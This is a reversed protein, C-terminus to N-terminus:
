AFLTEDLGEIDMEKSNGEALAARMKSAEKAWRDAEKAVDQDNIMPTAYEVTKERYADTRVSYRDEKSLETWMKRMRDALGLRKIVELLSVHNGDVDVYVSTNYMEQVVCLHLIREEFTRIQEAVEQPKKATNPTFSATSKKFSPRILDLRMKALHIAERIRYGTTRM